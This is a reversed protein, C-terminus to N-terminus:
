PRGGIPVASAALNLALGIFFYGRVTCVFRELKAAGSNSEGARSATMNSAKLSLERRSRPRTDILGRWHEVRSQFEEKMTREARTWSLFEEGMQVAWLPARIPCSLRSFSIDETARLDQEV